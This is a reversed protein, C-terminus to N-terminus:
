IKSKKLPGFDRFNQSKKSMGSIQFDPTPCPNQVIRVFGGFHGPQDGSLSEPWIRITAKLHGFVRFKRIKAIKRSKASKQSKESNQQNKCNKCIECSEPYTWFTRIKPCWFELKKTDLNACNKSMGSMLIQVNRHTDYPSM